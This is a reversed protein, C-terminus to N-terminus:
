QEAGEADDDVDWGCAACWEGPDEVFPDGNARYSIEPQQLEAGCQPCYGVRWGEMIDPSM